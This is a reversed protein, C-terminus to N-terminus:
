QGGHEPVLVNEGPNRGVPCHFRGQVVALSPQGGPFYLCVPASEALAQGAPPNDAGRGPSPRPPTGVPRVDLERRALARQDPFRAPHQRLHPNKREPQRRPNMPLTINVMKSIGTAMDCYGSFDFYIEFAYFLMVLFLDAATASALNTYGWSVGRAFTDALVMKKFLGFSFLKIGCAINEPRIKKQGPNNLQDIFEKPEALPGMVLKPFFLSFSLYDSVRVRPISERYVSVVYMIQQFTFFSIGLPLILSVTKYDTGWIGNVTTLAFNYYKYYFLLAANLVIDLVLLPKRFRSWKILAFSVLLNLILSVGLVAASEWGGYICFGAGFAIVVAKTLSSRIRAALFYCAVFAPVVVLICLYSNFQM